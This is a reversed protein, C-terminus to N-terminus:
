VNRAENKQISRYEIQNKRHLSSMTGQMTDKKKVTIESSTTLTEETNRSRTNKLKIM